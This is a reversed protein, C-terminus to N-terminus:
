RAGFSKQPGIVRGDIRFVGRGWITVQHKQGPPEAEEKSGTRGASGLMGTLAKM